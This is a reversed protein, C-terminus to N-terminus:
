SGVWPGDLYLDQLSGRPGQDTLGVVSNHSFESAEKNSGPIGLLFLHLGLAKMLSAMLHEPLIGPHHASEFLASV